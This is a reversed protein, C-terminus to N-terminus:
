NKNGYACHRCNNGCCTGKLYHYLETFVFLGNEKYFHVEKLLNQLNLKGRLNYNTNVLSELEILCNVCLCNYNTESIFAKTNESLTIGGCQCNSIDNSNCEFTVNCRNCYTIENKNM